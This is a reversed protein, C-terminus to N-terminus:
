QAAGAAHFHFSTVVFGGKSLLVSCQCNGEASRLTCHTNSSAASNPEAVWAFSGPGRATQLSSGVWVSV